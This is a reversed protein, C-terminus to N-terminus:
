CWFKQAPSEATTRVVFPSTGTRSVWDGASDVDDMQDGNLLIQDPNFGIHLRRIGEKIDRITDGGHIRVIHETPDDGLTYKMVREFTPDPPSGDASKVFIRGKSVPRSEDLVMQRGFAENIIRVQNQWHPLARIEHEEGLNEDGFFVKWERVDDPYFSTFEKPGTQMCTIPPDPLAEYALRPWMEAPFKPVSVTMSSGHAQVIILEAIAFKPKLSYNGSKLPLPAVKDGSYALYYNPNELQEEVKTQAIAFIESLTARPSIEIGFRLIRNDWTYYEL